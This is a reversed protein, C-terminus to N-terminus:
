QYHIEHVKLYSVKGADNKKTEIVVVQDINTAMSLYNLYSEISCTNVITRGDFGIVQVRAQMGAFHPKAKQINHIRDIRKVNQNGVMSLSYALNDHQNTAEDNSTTPAQPPTNINAMTSNSATTLESKYIPTQPCPNGGEDKKNKTLERTMAITNDMLADWSVNKSQSVFYQLVCLFSHTLYGGANYWKGNEQFIYCGSTYKPESSAVIIGGRVNLFLNRYVDCTGKSLITAGRSANNENRYYGEMLSNCMDGMVITLRPNKKRIRTYVDHLPYLQSNSKYDDDNVFLCMEPFDTEENMARGGHGSYYFFVIDDPACTLNTMVADLNSRSFNAQTGYYFYKKIKYGIANTIATMELQVRKFDVEVSEGIGKNNTNAFIIAHLTQGVVANPAILAILFVILVLRKM